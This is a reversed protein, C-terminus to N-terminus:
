SKACYSQIAELVRCKPLIDAAHAFVDKFYSPIAPDVPLFLVVSDTGLQPHVFDSGPIVSYGMRAYFPVLARRANIVDLRIDHHILDTWIQQCMWRLAALRHICSNANIRFKCSSSLRDHFQTIIAPPFFEACDIRGHIQRTATLTGVPSSQYLLCYHDSYEDFPFTTQGDGESRVRIVNGFLQNDTGHETYLELGLDPHKAVLRGFRNPM